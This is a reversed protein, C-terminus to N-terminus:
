MVWVSMVRVQAANDAGAQNNHRQVGQAIHGASEDHWRDPEAQVGHEAVAGPQGGRPEAAPQLEVADQMSIDCCCVIYTVIEYAIQEELRRVALELDTIRAMDQERPPRAEFRAEAQELEDELIRQQKQLIDLQKAHEVNIRNIQSQYGGMLTEMESTHKATMEDEKAAVTNVCERRVTLLDTGMRQLESQAQQVAANLEANQSKVRALEAEHGVTVFHMDRGAETLQEIKAADQAARTEYRVRVGILENEHAASVQASASQLQSAHMSRLQAVASDHRQSLENRLATMAEAHQSALRSREDELQQAARDCLTRQLEALKILWDATVRSLDAQHQAKLADMDAMLKDHDRASRAREEELQQGHAALLAAKEKDFSERAAHVDDHSKAVEQAAKRAYMQLQSNLANNDHKLGELQSRWDLALAALEGEHQGRLTSLELAHAAVASAQLEVREKALRSEFQSLLEANSQKSNQGLQAMEAKLQEAAASALQAEHAASKVNQESESLRNTLYQEAFTEFSRVTMVCGDCM